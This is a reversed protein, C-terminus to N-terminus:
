TGRPPWGTGRASGLLGALHALDDAVLTFDDSPLPREADPRAIYATAFGQKAAARLDWPHAAVMMVQSAEVGLQELAMRYVAPDPKFSQVANSSLVAHWALGGEASLDVLEALEANSLAVVKFSRRLEALAAPSDPWPRLRHIIASLENVLEPALSTGSEDLVEELCRRRLAQHSIWPSRGLRVADMRESIRAQWADLVAPAVDPQQNTSEDVVVTGIVDFILTDVADMM